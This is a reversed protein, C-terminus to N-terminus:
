LHSYDYEIVFEPYAHAKDFIVFEQHAQQHASFSGNNKPGPNAIISDFPEQSAINTRKPPLKRECCTKETYHADGILVRAVIIYSRREPPRRCNGNGTYQMSKCVNSAFYTGQGYLGGAKAERFDFGNQLIHKLGEAGTGHFLYMENLDRELEMQHSGLLQKVCDEVAAPIAPSVLPPKIGLRKHERHLTRRAQQYKQFLPYNEVQFAKLTAAANKLQLQRGVRVKDIGIGMFPCTSGCHTGFLTSALSELTQRKVNLPIKVAPLDTKTRSGPELLDRTWHQPRDVRVQIRRVKNTHLNTQTMGVFDFEYSFNGIRLQCHESKRSSTNKGSSKRALDTQFTEYHTDLQHCVEPNMREWENGNQWTWVMHDGGAAKAAIEKQSKELRKTEARLEEIRHQEAVLNKKAEALQEQEQQLKAHLEEREQDIREKEDAVRDRCDQLKKVQYEMATKENLLQTNEAQSKEMQVKMGDLDAVLAEKQRAAEQIQQKMAEVEEMIVRNENQKEALLRRTEEEQEETKALAGELADNQQQLAKKDQKLNHIFRTTCQKQDPPPQKDAKQLVKFLSEAGAMSRPGVIVTSNEISTGKSYSHNIKLSPFVKDKVLGGIESDWYPEYYIAGIATEKGCADRCSACFAQHFNCIIDEARNSKCENVRFPKNKPVYVPCTAEDLDLHSSWIAM